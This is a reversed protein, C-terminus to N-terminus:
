NLLHFLIFDGDFALNHFYIRKYPGDQVWEIFAGVDLGHVVDERTVDPKVPAIGWCWVRCDEPDNVTEFDAFGTEENTKM